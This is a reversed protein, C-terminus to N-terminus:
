LAKTVTELPLFLTRADSPFQLFGFNAYFPVIEDDIAHVLVARAGVEKSAALIRRLADKLLAQGLGRGQYEKDVALRGVIVVPVFQPTGHRYKRPIKEREVSGASSCYYGVVRNGTCAVFCRATKGESSQAYRVLWDNLPGKGCDFRSVDHAPSLPVPEAIPQGPGGSQPSAVEGM